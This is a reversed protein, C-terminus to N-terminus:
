AHSQRDLRERDAMRAKVMEPLNAIVMYQDYEHNVSEVMKTYAAAAEQFDQTWCKYKDSWEDDFRKREEEDLSFYADVPDAHRNRDRLPQYHKSELEDLQLVAAAYRMRWLRHEREHREKRINSLYDRYAMHSYYGRAENQAMDLAVELDVDRSDDLQQEVSNRAAFQDILAARARRSGTYSGFAWGIVFVAAAVLVLIM